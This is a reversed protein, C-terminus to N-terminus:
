RVGAQEVRLTAWVVKGDSTPTSGWAVSVADVVMLGRGSERDPDDGAGIRPPSPSHDRVSLHLYRSRLTVSLTMSTGAHRLVNAVLETVVLEAVDRCQPLSWIECAYGVLRRAESTAGPLPLLRESLRRWRPKRAGAVLASAVDGFKPVYRCVAFRDLAETTEPGPAALVMACGPWAAAHRAMAPFVTLAVDDGVILRSLDIVITKPQDAVCKLLVSRVTPATALDLTGVLAVVVAGDSRETAVTLTGVPRTM